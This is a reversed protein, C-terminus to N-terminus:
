QKGDLLNNIYAKIDAYHEPAHDRLLARAARHLDTELLFVVRYAALDDVLIEAEDDRELRMGSEGLNFIAWGEAEAAAQEESSWLEAADFDNSARCENIISEMERKSFADRAYDCAANMDEWEVKDGGGNATDALEYGYVIRYAADIAARIQLGSMVVGAHLYQGDDTIMTPMTM